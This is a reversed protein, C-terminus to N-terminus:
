YGIWGTQRTRIEAEINVESSVMQARIGTLLGTATTIKEIFRTIFMIVETHSLHSVVHM